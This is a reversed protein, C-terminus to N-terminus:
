FRRTLVRAIREAANGDWCKMLRSKKYKGSLIKKIGGLVKKQDTGVLTNSGQSLTMIRETNERMTLCPIDLVSTEVQVSGSDTLVAAARSFLALFDRYGLPQLLHVGSGLDIKLQKLKQKTRPHVPFFIPLLKSAERLVRAIHRLQALNDVNGPRHLTLVAYRRIGRTVRPPRASKIKKWEFFLNDIMVDGVRFIKHKAIGEHKLHADAEAHPTFLLDSLRDTIVRNVEEPMSLDGSRLGAEVHALPIGLKSSVLASALTSNVDGVVVVGAPRARMVTKEFRKMIEATQVAHTGSGVKLYIDPVPIGLERFFQGSMNDDYHQGTHVLVPRFSRGCRHLARLIPAIKMFNPRAGAVLLITKAM